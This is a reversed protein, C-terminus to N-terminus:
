GNPVPLTHGVDRQELTRPLHAVRTSHDAVRELRPRQGVPVDVIDDDDDALQEAGRVFAADRAGDRERQGDERQERADANAAIAVDLEPVFGEIKAFPDEALERDRESSPSGLVVGDVEPGFDCTPRLQERESAGARDDRDGTYGFIRERLIFPFM